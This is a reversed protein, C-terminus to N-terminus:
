EKEGGAHVVIEVIHRPLIGSEEGKVFRLLQSDLSGIWLGLSLQVIFQRLPISSTRIESYRVNFTGQTEKEQGLAMAWLLKAPVVFVEGGTGFLWYVASQSYKLLGKLQATDIRWSDRFDNSGQIREPKKVQVLECSEFKVCGTVAGDVVIAVDCRYEPEEVSKQVSRHSYRIKGEPFDKSALAAARLNAGQFAYELDTLLRQTHQEEELTASSLFFQQFGNTARDIGDSLSREIDTAGIWLESQVNLPNPFAPKGDLMRSGLSILDAALVQQMNGLGQLHSLVGRARDRIAEDNGRLCENLKNVLHEPERHHVAVMVVHVLPELTPLFHLLLPISDVWSMPSSIAVDEVFRAIGDKETQHQWSSHLEGYKRLGAWMRCSNAFRDSQLMSLGLENLFGEVFEPSEPALKNSFAFLGAEFALEAEISALVGLPCHQLVNTINSDLYSGYPRLTSTWKEEKPWLSKLAVELSEAHPLCYDWLGLNQIGHWWEFANVPELTLANSAACKQALQKFQETFRQWEGKSISQVTPSILLGVADADLKGREILAIAHTHLFEWESDTSFYGVVYRDSIHGNWFGLIWREACRGTFGRPYFRIAQSIAKPLAQNVKWNQSLDCEAERAVVVLNRIDGFTLHDEFSFRETFVKRNKALHRILAERKDSNDALSALSSAIRLDTEGNPILEQEHLDILNEEDSM